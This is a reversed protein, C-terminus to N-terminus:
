DSLICCLTPHIDPEKKPNRSIIENGKYQIDWFPNVAGYSDIKDQISALCSYVKERLAEESEYETTPILNQQRAWRILSPPPVIPKTTVESHKHNDGSFLSISMSSLSWTAAIMLWQNLRPLDDTTIINTTNNRTCIVSSNNFELSFTFDEAVARFILGGKEFGTRDVWFRISMMSQLLDSPIFYGKCSPTISIAPM